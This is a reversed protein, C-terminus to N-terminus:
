SFELEFKLSHGKAASWRRISKAALNRQVSSPVYKAVLRGLSMPLGDEEIVDAPNTVEFGLKAELKGTGVMLEHVEIFIGFMPDNLQSQWFCCPLFDLLHM